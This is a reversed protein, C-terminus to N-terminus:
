EKHIKLNKMLLGGKVSSSQMKRYSDRMPKLVTEGGDESNDDVKVNRCYLMFSRVKKQTGKIESGLM